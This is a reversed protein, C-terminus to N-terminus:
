GTGSRTEFSCGELKGDYNRTCQGNCLKDVREIINMGCTLGAKTGHHHNGILGKNMFEQLMGNMHHFEQVEKQMELEDLMAAHCLAMLCLIAVLARM